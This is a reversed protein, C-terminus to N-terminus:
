RTYQFEFHFAANWNKRQQHTLNWEIMCSKSFFDDDDDEDDLWWWEFSAHVKRFFASIISLSADPMMWPPSEFKGCRYMKGSVGDSPLMTFRLHSMHTYNLTKLQSTNRKQQLLLSIVIHQMWTTGSKPYLCAHEYLWSVMKKVKDGCPFTCTDTICYFVFPM